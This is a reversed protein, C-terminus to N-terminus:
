KLWWAILCGVIGLALISGQIVVAASVYRRWGEEPLLRVREILGADDLWWEAKRGVYLGIERCSQGSYGDLKDFTFGLFDGSIPGTKVICTGSRAMDVIRCTEHHGTPPFGTM